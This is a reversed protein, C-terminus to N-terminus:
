FSTRECYRVTTKVKVNFIKIHRNAIQIYATKQSM